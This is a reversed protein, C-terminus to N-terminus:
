QDDKSHWQDSLRDLHDLFSQSLPGQFLIINDKLLRDEFNWWESRELQAIVANSFRYRIIRAPVGGVIAYPPIDKTVVAGAGVVAGNGIKIGGMVLVNTGIWVDNGIVVPKYEDYTNEKTWSSGTGNRVSSFIPSTSIYDLSHSGMGISCNGAISCYKGVTTYVLRSKPGVYSYDGVTAHNLVSRRWIKAKPSVNSYEVRATISLSSVFLSKIKTKLLSLVRYLM